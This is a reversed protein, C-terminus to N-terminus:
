MAVYQLIKMCVDDSLQDFPNINRRKKRPTSHPQKKRSKKRDSLHMAMGVAAIQETTTGIRGHMFLNADKHVYLVMALRDMSMKSILRKADWDMDTGVFRRQLTEVATFGSACTVLPNCLSRTLYVVNRRHWACGLSVARHALTYQKDVIIESFMDRTDSVWIDMPCPGRPFRLALKFQPGDDCGVVQCFRGNHGMENFYIDVDIGDVNADFDFRQNTCCLLLDLVNFNTMAAPPMVSCNLDVFDLVVDSSIRLNVSYGPKRVLIFVTFSARFISTTIMGFCRPLGEPGRRERAVTMRNAYDRDTDADAGAARLMVVVEGVTKYHIRPCHIITGLPTNYEKDPLHLPDPDLARHVCMWTEPQLEGLSGQCNMRRVREDLLIRLGEVNMSYVAIHFANHMSMNYTCIDAGYTILIRMKACAMQGRSEAAVMLASDGDDNPHNADAGGELLTKLVQVPVRSDRAALVLATYHTSDGDHLDVSSVTRTNPFALIYARLVQMMDVDDLHYFNAVIFEVVGPSNRLSEIPEVIGLLDRMFVRVKLKFSPEVVHSIGSGWAEDSTLIHMIHVANPIDDELTSKGTLSSKYCFATRTARYIQGPSYTSQLKSNECLRIINSTSIREVGEM